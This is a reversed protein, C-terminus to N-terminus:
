ATKNRMPAGNAPGIRTAVVMKAEGTKIKINIQNRTVRDTLALVRELSGDKASEVTDMEWHGVKERANIERSREEISKGRCNRAARLKQKEKKKGQNRKIALDANSIGPIIGMEIYRYLTRPSIKTDFEMGKVVLGNKEKPYDSFKWKWDASKEPKFQKGGPTLDFISFNEM